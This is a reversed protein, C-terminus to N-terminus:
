IFLRSNYLMGARPCGEMQIHPCGPDAPRLGPRNAARPPTKAHYYRFYSRM